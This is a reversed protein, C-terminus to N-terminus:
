DNQFTLIVESETDAKMLKNRFDDHMLKRSLQSLIRLHLDDSDEPVAIMIFLHSLKKDMAEFDIGKLSRGFVISAEKVASTKGHPIAVGKGIATSYEKERKWVADIFEEKSILKGNDELIFALEKIVDFKTDSKLNLSIQNIDWLENVKDL